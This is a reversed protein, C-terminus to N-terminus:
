ALEVDLAEAEEELFRVGPLNDALKVIVRSLRQAGIIVPAVCLVIGLTVLLVPSTSVIKEVMQVIVRGHLEKIKKKLEASELADVRARWALYPEHMEAPPDSAFVSVCLLQIFNIRHGFRIMSNILQRLGGYVPDEFSLAGANALDFLEDRIAFLEQRFLDLRYRKWGVFWLASVLGALILLRITLAVSEITM